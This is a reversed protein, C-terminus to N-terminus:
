CLSYRTVTTAKIWNDSMRERTKMLRPKCRSSVGRVAKYVPCLLLASVTGANSCVLRFQFYTKTYLVPKSSAVRRSGLRVSSIFHLCFFSSKIPKEEGDESAPSCSQPKIRWRLRSPTNQYFAAIPTPPTTSSVPSHRGSLGASRTVDRRRVSTLSRCHSTSCTTM